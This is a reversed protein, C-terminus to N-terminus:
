DVFVKSLDIVCDDLIYVPVASESSYAQTVFDKGKLIHVALSSSDPDIIWYERVGYERYKNFKTIRDHNSTSPSLIEIVMDPAGDCGADTLKTLDCFVVIDPQVVTDDKTDANLRVDFPAHYVECPKDDLYSILQALLNISIKQHRRKPASMEYPIGDILEWRKDDDWKLYDSYTYYRNYDVQAEGVTIEDFGKKNEM